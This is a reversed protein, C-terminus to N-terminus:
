CFATCSDAIFIMNLQMFTNEAVFICFCGRYTNQLLLDAVKNNSLSEM